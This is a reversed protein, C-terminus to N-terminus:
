SLSSITVLIGQRKLEDGAAFEALVISNVDDKGKKKTLVNMWNLDLSLTKISIAKEPNKFTTIFHNLSKEPIGIDKKKKEITQATQNLLKEIDEIKKRAEYSLPALNEFANNKGKLMRKMADLHAKRERLESLEERLSTIKEMAAAALIKMVKKELLTLTDEQSNSPAVLLHDYFNITQMAADRLIMEGQQEHGFTTKTERSMTLLAIIATNKQLQGKQDVAIRQLVEKIHDPSRFIATLYPDSHYHSSSLYIPGPIASVIKRSYEMAHEIAPLATKKYKPALRIKSDTIDIAAELAHHVETRHVHKLHVNKFQKAVWSLVSLSSASRTDKMM